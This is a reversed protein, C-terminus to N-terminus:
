KECSLKAEKDLTMKTLLLEAVRQTLEFLEGNLMYREEIKEEEGRWLTKSILDPVKHKEKFEDIQKLESDVEELKGEVEKRNAYIKRLEKKIERRRIQHKCDVGYVTSCKSM